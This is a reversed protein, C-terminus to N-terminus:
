YSVKGVDYLEEDMWAEIEMGVCLCNLKGHFSESTDTVKVYGELENRCFLKVNASFHM